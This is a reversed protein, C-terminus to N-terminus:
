TPEARGHRTMRIMGYGLGRLVASTRDAVSLKDFIRRVNTDVTHRSVGLIDAIVGNSKGRAIWGLIEEERPSLDRDAATEHATIECFRLHALQVASKLEFIQADSLDPRRGDFGLGVYANRMNPGYVQMALGDGFDATELEAMYSKEQVTLDKLLGVDKWFFPQVRRASLAPIPDVEFLSAEIYHRVWDEPFGEARVFVTAPGHIVDVVHYSFRRVDREFLYARTLQWLVRTDATEQCADALNSLNTTPM